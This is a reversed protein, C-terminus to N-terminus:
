TGVANGGERTAPSTRLAPFGDTQEERRIDAALAAANWATILVGGRTATLRRPDPGSAASAWVTGIRWGPFEEQLRSVDSAPEPESDRESGSPGPPPQSSTTM